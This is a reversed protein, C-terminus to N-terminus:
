QATSPKSISGTQAIARMVKAPARTHAPKTQIKTQGQILLFIALINQGKGERLSTVKPTKLTQTLDRHTQGLNEIEKEM